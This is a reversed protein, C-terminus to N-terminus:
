LACRDRHGLECQRLRLRHHPVFIRVLCPKPNRHPCPCPRRQCPASAMSLGIEAGRHDTGSEETKKEADLQRLRPAVFSM